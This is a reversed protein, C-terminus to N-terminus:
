VAPRAVRQLAESDVIRIQGRELELIGQGEFDKLIRSVVERVSGLEDALIQHTTEMSAGKTLLLSALRQDMKGFAIEEILTMLRTLRDGFVQFAFERFPPCGVVLRTFLGQKIAVGQLPTEALGRAPYASNGLLCSVTLVCAEGERVRYLLIERGTSTSIIVRITGSSLMPFFSCPSHVDFLTEGMPIKVPQGERMFERQLDWPLDGLVPYRGVLEKYEAENIM